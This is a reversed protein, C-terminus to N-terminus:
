GIFAFGMVLGGFDKSYCQPVSKSAICQLQNWTTCIRCWRPSTFLPRVKSKRCQFFVVRRGICDSAKHAVWSIKKKREGNKVTADSAILFHQQEEFECSAPRYKLFSLAWANHWQWIVILVSLFSTEYSWFMKMTAPQKELVANLIPCYQCLENYHTQSYSLMASCLSLLGALQESLKLLLYVRARDSMNQTIRFLCTILFCFSSMTSGYKINCLNFCLSLRM